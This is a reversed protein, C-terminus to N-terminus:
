KETIYKKQVLPVFSHAENIEYGIWPNYCLLIGSGWTETYQSSNKIQTYRGRM